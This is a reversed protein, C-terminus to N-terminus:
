APFLEAPVESVHVHTEHVRDFGWCVDGQAGHDSVRQPIQVLVVHRGLDLPDADCGPRNSDM